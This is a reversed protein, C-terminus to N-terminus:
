GLLIYFLLGLGMIIAWFAITEVYKQPKTLDQVRHYRQHFTTRRSNKFSGRRTVRSLVVRGGGGGLRCCSAVRIGPFYVGVGSSLLGSPLLNLGRALNTSPIRPSHKQNAEPNKKFLDYEQFERSSLIVMPDGLGSLRILTGLEM